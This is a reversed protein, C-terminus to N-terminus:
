FTWAGFLLCSSHVSKFVIVLFRDHEYSCSAVNLPHKASLHTDRFIEMEIFDITYLNSVLQLYIFRFRVMQDM